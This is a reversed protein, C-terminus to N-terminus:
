RLAALARDVDDETSYAHFSARVSGARTAARVGAAALKREADPVEVLTIASDGPPLDLGARFRNALAVDHEHIAPIGIAEILELAPATGVWSFWAPSIDFRRADEALRLPPGYYSDHVDRGAYWNAALPTIREAVEPRIVAFASGRPSMLWKYAGCLLVDAASADVPLWGVAQTADVVVLAGVARAAACVEDLDAVAGTASQVLSFAVLQVDEDIAAVLEAAPVTRVAATEHVLYPFLNSTFEEQPALITSGPALAAAIPALMQAVVSGTSVWSVPVGVLRAFSERSREVSEGWGEWSTAGVRWDTLAAQMADFAVTPPLGYSATNLWGPQAAWLDPSLHSSM